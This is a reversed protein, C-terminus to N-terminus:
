SSSIFLYSYKGNWLSVLENYNKMEFNSGLNYHAVERLSDDNGVHCVVEVFNDYNRDQVQDIAVRVKVGDSCQLTITGADLEKVQGVIRVDRGRYRSVLASNVRPTSTSPM